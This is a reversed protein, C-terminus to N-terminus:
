DTVGIEFYAGMEISTAEAEMEAVLGLCAARFSEDEADKRECIYSLSLQGEGTELRYFVGEVWEIQRCTAQAWDFIRELTAAPYFTIGGSRLPEVGEAIAEKLIM